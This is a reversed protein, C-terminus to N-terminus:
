HLKRNRLRLDAAAQELVYAAHLEGMLAGFRDIGFALFAGALIHPEVGEASKKLHTELLDRLTEEIRPNNKDYEM